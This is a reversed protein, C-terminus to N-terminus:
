SKDESLTNGYPTPPPRDGFCVAAYFNRGTKRSRHDGGKPLADFPLTDFHAQGEVALQQTARQASVVEAELDEITYMTTPPAIGLQAHLQALEDWLLARRDPPRPGTPQQFSIADNDM